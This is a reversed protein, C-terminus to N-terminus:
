TRTCSVGSLDFRKVLASCLANLNKRTRIIHDEDPFSLTELNVGKEKAYAVYKTSQWVPVTSDQKGWVVLVKDNATLQEMGTFVSAALYADLNATDPVGDFLERFPSSPIEQILSYWDSVGNISVAGDIATPMAVMGRLAMYGGYSNGILYVKGVRKERTIDKIVNAIDTIEVTGIHMDLADRFAAGYGTSGTYDVKFVYSGGAALRELLEDYVAYSLYPHYGKAVQRQPGGHMWIFLDPKSSRKAAKPALLVGTRGGYVAVERTITDPLPADKLAKLVTKKGSAPSLLTVNTNKGRTALYALRADAGPVRKLFDGYSVDEEVRTTTNGDYQWLDWELPGDVNALFYLRTGIFLYDETETKPKTLPALSRPHETGLGDTRMTYLTRFGEVDELFAVRSEDDSFELYSQMASPGNLQTGTDFRWVEHRLTEYNYGALYSASPSLSLFSLERALTLTTLRKTAIDYRTYTLGCKLIVADNNKSLSVSADPTTYPLLAIKKARTGSTDYLLYRTSAGLKLAYVGLTGDASRPYVTTGLIPPALTPRKTATKACTGKAIGCTAYRTGAPGKYEILLTDGHQEVLTGYSIDGAHAALPMCVGIGLFLFLHTTYKM